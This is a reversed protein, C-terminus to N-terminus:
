ALFNFKYTLQLNINTFFFNKRKKFFIIASVLIKPYSIILRLDIYIPTHLGVKTIFSGYKIAGIEYLEVALEKKDIKM